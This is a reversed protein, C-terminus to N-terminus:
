DRRYQALAPFGAAQGAALRARDVFFSRPTNVQGCMVVETIDENKLIEILKSLQGLSIWHCRPAM